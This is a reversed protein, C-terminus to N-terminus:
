RGTSSSWSSASHLVLTVLPPVQKHTISNINNAQSDQLTKLCEELWSCVSPRDHQLCEHLM